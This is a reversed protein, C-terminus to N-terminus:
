HTQKTRDAREVNPPHLTRMLWRLRDWRPAAPNICQAQAQLSNAQPRAEEGRAAGQPHVAPRRTWGAAGTRGRGAAHDDRVAAVLGSRRPPRRAGHGRGQDTVLSPWRSGMRSPWHSRDDGGTDSPTNGITSVAGPAGLDPQLRPLAM